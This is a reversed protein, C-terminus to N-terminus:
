VPDDNEEEKIDLGLGCFWAGLQMLWMGLRLRWDRVVRIRVEATVGTAKIADRLNLEAPGAM